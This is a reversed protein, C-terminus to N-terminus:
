QQFTLSTAALAELQALSQQQQNLANIRKQHYELLQQNARLVEELGTANSTFSTVLLQIQQNVLLIQDEYLRLNRESEEWSRFANAWEMALLNETKQRDLQASEKLFETEKIKSNIKKRYIPLTMTVMPMVMNEGGMPMDNELRPDFTMYNVGAGLMPRGELKAMKAQQDYAGIEAQYMALMPNNQRISDLIEQKELSLVAKELHVPLNIEARIERNLLQNFKIHLPELNAQLQEITNELERIQLRIQLVANMGSASSGMPASSMAPNMTSTNTKSSSENGSMGGMGGTSGATTSSIGPPPMPPAPASAPSSTGAQFRILALEEYKKLYELNEQSIKIEEKLSILDYWTSKVQFFLQNKEELFLQYQAKSMQNAEEKQTGIMGFWPFMQMLRFDTTQNGMFREMPEFFFGVQLEPDPLGPQNVREATAQYRAYSAKLGPNNEAAQILYDDLTQAELSISLLFFLFGGLGRLFPSNTGLVKSDKTEM